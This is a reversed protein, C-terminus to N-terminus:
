EEEIKEFDVSVSYTNEYGFWRVTVSGKITSFKYFTWTGSNDEDEPDDKQQSVEEAILIPSDLLDYLDGCIDAISVSECCFQDHFLKFKEGTFTTFILEDNDIQEIRSLTKGILNSIKAM